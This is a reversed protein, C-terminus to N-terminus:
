RGRLRLPCSKAPLPNFRWSVLRLRRETVARLFSGADVLISGGLRVETGPAFIDRNRLCPSDTRTSGILLWFQVERSFPTSPLASAAACSDPHRARIASPSNNLPEIPKQLAPQQRDVFWPAASSSFASHNLQRNTESFLAMSRGRKDITSRLALDLSGTGIGGAAAQPAASIIAPGSCGGGHRPPRRTRGEDVVFIKFM